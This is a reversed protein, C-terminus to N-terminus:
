SAPLHRASCSQGLSCLGCLMAKTYFRAFVHLHESPTESSFSAQFAATINYLTEHVLTRMRSIAQPASHSSHLGLVIRTGGLHQLYLFGKVCRDM